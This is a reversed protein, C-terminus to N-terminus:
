SLPILEPNSELKSPPNRRFLRFEGDVGFNDCMLFKQKDKLIICTSKLEDINIQVHNSQYTFTGSMPDQNQIFELTGNSKLNLVFSDLSDYIKRQFNDFEFPSKGKKVKKPYYNVHYSSAYFEQTWQVDWNSDVQTITKLDKADIWQKVIPAKVLANVQTWTGIFPDQTEVSQFIKPFFYAYVIAIQEHKANSKTEAQALGIGLSMVLSFICCIVGLKTVNKGMSGCAYSVRM